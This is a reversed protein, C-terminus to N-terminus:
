SVATLAPEPALSPTPHGSVLGNVYAFHSAQTRNAVDLKRYINRLHFKVTQETVWLHRAVDGNTSGAAVLQLIEIERTTLPLSEPTAPQAARSDGGTHRHAHWIHGNLTERVLTALTTPHTAKSIVGRAGADFIQELWEPDMEVGLLIIAVQRDSEALERTLEVARDCRDMDDLLIVDPEAGLIREASTRHGHAYGVLIFEGSKRFGIRIAEVILSNDAIIVVRKLTGAARQPTATWTEEMADGTVQCTAGRDNEM